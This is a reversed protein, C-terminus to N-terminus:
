TNRIRVYKLWTLGGMKRVIGGCVHPISTPRHSANRLSLTDLFIHRGVIVVVTFDQKPISFYHQQTYSNILPM